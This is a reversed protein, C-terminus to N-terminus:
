PHIPGSSIRVAREVGIVTEEPTNFNEIGIHWEFEDPSVFRIRQFRGPIIRDGEIEYNRLDIGSGDALFTGRYIGKQPINSFIGIMEITGDGEPANFMMLTERRGHPSSTHNKCLVYTDKIAWECVRVSVEVYENDRGPWIVETTHWTGVLFSFDTASEPAPEFDLPTQAVADAAVFCGVALAACVLGRFRSLATM